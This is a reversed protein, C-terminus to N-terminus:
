YQHLLYTPFPTVKGSKILKSLAIGGEPGISNVRLILTSLNPMAGFHQLQTAIIKAARPGLCCHELNLRTVANYGNLARCLAQIGVGNDLYANAPCSASSLSNRQFDLGTPKIKEHDLEKRMAAFARRGASSISDRSVVHRGFYFSFNCLADGNRIIGNIDRRRHETHM